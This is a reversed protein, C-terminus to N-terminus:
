LQRLGEEIVETKMNSMGKMPELGERIQFRRVIKTDYGESRKDKSIKPGRADCEIKVNMTIKAHRYSINMGLVSRACSLNPGSPQQNSIELISMVSTNFSSPYISTPFTCRGHHDNLELKRISAEGQLQYDWLFGHRSELFLSKRSDLAAWMPPETDTQSGDDSTKLVLLPPGTPLKGDIKHIRTRNSAVLVDRIQNPYQRKTGNMATAAQFTPEQNKSQPSLPFRQEVYECNPNCLREVM